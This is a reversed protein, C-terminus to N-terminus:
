HMFIMNRYYIMTTWHLLLSLLSCGLFVVRGALRASLLPACETAECAALTLFREFSPLTLLSMCFIVMCSLLFDISIHDLLERKHMFHGRILSFFVKCCLNTRNPLDSTTGPTCYVPALVALTIKVSRLLFSIMLSSAFRRLLCFFTCYIRYLCQSFM